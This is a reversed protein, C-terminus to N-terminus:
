RGQFTICSGAKSTRKSIASQIPTSNITPITMECTYSHRSAARYDCSMAPDIHMYYILNGHGSVLM